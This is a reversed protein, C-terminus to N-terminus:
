SNGSIKFSGYVVLLIVYKGECILLGLIEM